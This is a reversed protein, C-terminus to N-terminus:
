NADLALLARISSKARGTSRPELKLPQNSESGAIRPALSRFRATCATTSARARSPPMMQPRPAWTMLVPTDGTKISSIRRPKTDATASLPAPTMGSKSTASEPAM